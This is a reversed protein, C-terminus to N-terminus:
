SAGGSTTYNRAGSGVDSTVIRTVWVYIGMFFAFALILLTLLEVGSPNPYERYLVSVDFGNLFGWSQVVPRTGPDLAVVTAGKVLEVDATKLTIVLLATIGVSIPILYKMSRWRTAFYYVTVALLPFGLLPWSIGGFAAANYWQTYPAQYVLLFYCSLTFLLAPFYLRVRGQSYRRVAELMVVGDLLVACALVFQQPYWEGVYLVAYTSVLLLVLLWPLFAMLSRLVPSGGVILGKGRSLYYVGAVAGLGMSLAIGVAWLTGLGTVLSASIGSTTVGMLGLALTPVTTHLISANWYGIVGIPAGFLIAAKFGWSTIFDLWEAETPTVKGRLRKMAAAGSFTASFALAGILFLKITLPIWSRNDMLGLQTVPDLRGSQLIVELSTPISPAIMYTNVLNFFLLSVTASICALSTLLSARGVPFTAPSDLPRQSRHQIFLLIGSIFLLILSMTLPTGWLSYLFPLALSPVPSVAGAFAIATVLLGASLTVFAASAKAYLRSCDWYRRDWTIRALLVTVFTLVGGGVSLIFSGVFTDYLFGAVIISLSM